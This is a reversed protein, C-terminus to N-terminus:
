AASDIGLDGLKRYLTSRGIGLRRAVESMRGRYHGIALRIVDAEIEELPRLHGELTYLMVGSSPSAPRHAPETPRPRHRRAFSEQAIQPFDATTLEPADCLVAARFLANQLQRVNGPWDYAMLLGLADETIGTERLGPQLAIRALLHRALAPLDGIRERLPPMTVQVTALRYLLDERFRGAAVEDALPVRSAAIVRVDVDRCGRSGLPWIRGTELAALLRAQTELPLSGIQDLFLTGGDAEVIRGPKREFAGAFAGREHGFLDSDIVNAPIASCDVVVLPRRARPSAAHIAEALMEKGTGQEGELLVSVRARAAKAATALAARFVPSAGVIEEFPLPQWLKEAMPRLEGEIASRNTTADLAALLRDPAVPKCLYDTAGARMAEVAIGLADLATIVHLAKDPHGHRIDTVFGIPDPILDLDVLLAEITAGQPGDLLDRADAVRDVITSRWGARAAVASVLRRQASDGAIVLLTRITERAM